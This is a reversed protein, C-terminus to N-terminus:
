TATRQIRCRSRGRNVRGGVSARRVYAGARGCHVGTRPLILDGFLDRGIKAVLTVKAGLRAAAVAQNAGKGRAVLVFRGGVITEGPAPLRQNKVVMDTNVSGVVVINPMQM